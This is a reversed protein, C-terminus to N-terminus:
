DLYYATLGTDPVNQRWCSFVPYSWASILLALYCQDTLFDYCHLKDFVSRRRIHIIVGAESAALVYYMDVHNPWRYKEGLSMTM